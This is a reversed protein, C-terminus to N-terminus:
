RSERPDDDAPDGHARDGEDARERQQQRFGREAAHQQREDGEGRARQDAARQEVHDRRSRRRGAVHDPAHGPGREAEGDEERELLEQVVVVAVARGASQRCGSV